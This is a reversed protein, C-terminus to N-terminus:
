NILQDIDLSPAPILRPIKYCGFILFCYCFVVSCCWGSHQHHLLSVRSDSTELPWLQFLRLLWSFLMASFSLGFYLVFSGMNYLYVHLYIVSYLLLHLLLSLDGTCFGVHIIYTRWRWAPSALEERALLSGRMTVGKWLPSYSFPLFPYSEWPSM